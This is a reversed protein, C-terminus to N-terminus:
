KRRFLMVAGLIVLVVAGIIVYLTTNTGATAAKQATTQATQAKTVATYANTAPAILSTLANWGSTLWSTGPSTGDTSNTTILPSTVAAAAPNAAANVDFTSPSTFYDWLDTSSTDM